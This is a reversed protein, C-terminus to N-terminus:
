GLQWPSGSSRGKCCAGPGACRDAPLGMAGGAPRPVRPAAPLGGGRHAPVQGPCPSSPVRSAQQTNFLVKRVAAGAPAAAMVTVAAAVRCCYSSRRVCRPMAPREGAAQGGVRRRRRGSYYAGTPLHQAPLGCQASRVHVVQRGVAGQRWSPSWVATTLLPAPVAPTHSCTLSTRRGGGQGEEATRVDGGRSPITSRTRRTTLTQITRPTGTGPRDM